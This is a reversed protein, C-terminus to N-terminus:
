ESLDQKQHLRFRWSTLIKMSDLKAELRDLLLFIETANVAELMPLLLSEDTNAM